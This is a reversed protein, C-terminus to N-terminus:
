HRFADRQPLATGDASLVRLSLARGGGAQFYDVRIPHWGARLAAAGSRLEATHPGDGDILLQDGIWLRSGDDSTLRFTWVGDAPVRVYGTLRVGWHEARAFRPVGVTAAVTNRVLTLTDLDAVRRARGEYYRMALGPALRSGDVAEAARLYGRTFRAARPPSTRGNNLFVRATVVTGTDSVPLSFSAAYAPSDATPDSGDTTYRITANAVAARLVVSVTDVLLLRDEELGTVGPIRYNVGLRDLLTFQAPLRAVFGDWSRAAQPSWVVEALALMRPLAMYEVHADDAMYETWVNGQAGLIHRAQAKTLSAPIPDYGYVRELTVIGGGALPEWRPEGQYYDFYLHSTPTMVVDHGARAAAVGGDIGRWSMVTAGPALGGELIEDWGVLRRGHSTLFRDIRHIFWSQLRDENALRERRMVQQALASQKWATKPAEDGGVHIFTSPFLEMVELLVDQLFAFTRESPCFIHDSVGWMTWVTYPGPGCGLEPYAALAAQSHGPMEIEPVVTVHREAAYRVVERVQEQTYFGCHPVGDGRYPDFERRVVTEARCGGVETLRPYKRIELRWGQDETLHWHFTNLKYRALLDIYRKVFKVDRFHRGADLHMGRWRFRPADDITVVPASGDAALLQRLTETGYFLGAGSRATVTIGRPAVVLRYGERTPDPFAPDLQLLITGGPGGSSDGLTRGTTELVVERLREAARAADLGGRAVLATSPGLVFHGQGTAVHAPRPVVHVAPEQAVAPVAAALVVAAILGRV